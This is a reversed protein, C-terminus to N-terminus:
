YDNFEDKLFEHESLRGTDKDYYLTTAVGTEGSFRNKLVRVTVQNAAEADQQNRELGIVSDSLQAISASGRLANLSTKLGEEWGKNGEPRKLHSVLILGIGTEEVLSRLQTMLVDITKREDGDDIGSVVISLHDLVVFGVDCGKALYRVKDLLNSAAMSGFHDYLYVRGSGVTDDYATRLDANTIGEKSLHLPRNIALGMLGLATRKINEELAIYGITEGQKILHYAIERCVQSKGVGSGATLTILEGRRIGHTLTNLGEYPWPISKVDDDTSVTQWIDTGKVIGDPRYDKADWFASVIEAGRGSMMLESPDKAQLEAIYAQNPRLLAAVEKAAKIGPADNDFMIVVKEFSSVFELEKKIARAAGAAGQPVSVVPWKNKFVQSVTLCDIEGETIVLAKGGSKWLHQGFLGSDKADGLFVFDKNPFRIKQAVVKGDRRYNAVHVTEGKFNSITYGFKRCTEETVLRKELARTIGAPILDSRRRPALDSNEAVGKPSRRKNCSYCYYHGDSYEANADSSGCAECPGHSILQSDDQTDM